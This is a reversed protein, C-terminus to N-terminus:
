LMLIQLSEHIGLGQDKLGIEGFPLHLSRNTESSKSWNPAQFTSKSFWYKTCASTVSIRFIIGDRLRASSRRAQAGSLCPRKETRLAYQNAFSSTHHLVVVEELESPELFIHSSMHFDSAGGLTCCKAHRNAVSERGVQLFLNLRLISTVSRQGIQPTSASSLKWGKKPQVKALSRHSHIDSTQFRGWNCVIKFVPVSHSKLRIRSKDGMIVHLIRITSQREQCTLFSIM